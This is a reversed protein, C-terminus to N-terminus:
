VNFTLARVQERTQESSEALDGMGVTDAMGVTDVMGVTDAM